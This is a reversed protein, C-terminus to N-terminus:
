KTIPFKTGCYGCLFDTSDIIVVRGQCVRCFTDPELNYTHPNLGTYDEENRLNYTKSYELKQM